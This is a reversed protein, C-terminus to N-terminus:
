EGGEVEAKAEAIGESVMSRLQEIPVGSVYMLALSYLAGIMNVVLGEGLAEAPVGATSREWELYDVLSNCLDHMWQDRKELEEPTLHVEVMGNRRIRKPM